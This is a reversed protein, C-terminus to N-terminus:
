SLRKGVILLKSLEYPTLNMLMMRPAIKELLEQLSKKWILPNKFAQFSDYDVIYEKWLKKGFSYFL